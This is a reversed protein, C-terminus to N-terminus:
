LRLLFIRLEPQKQGIQINLLLTIFSIRKIYTLAEKTMIHIPGKFIKETFKDGAAGELGFYVIDIQTFPFFKWPEKNFMMLGINLPFSLDKPGGVIGMIRSLEEISLNLAEDYLSSKVEKLYSLILEKSIDKETEAQQNIRDDFPIKSTLSILENEEDKRPKVTNSNKRIYYCYEKNNKGLKEKVKYPRSQGGLVRIVLVMKNQFEVPFVTPHYYPSISSNCLEFLKKQYSDIKSPNVGEPPLIPQGNNEEIGVIIYGGGLNQFDNAFACISHIISEPNWGKKFELRSWEVSKFNLLKEINIPPKM